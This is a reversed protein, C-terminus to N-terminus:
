KRTKASSENKLEEEEDKKLKETEVQNIISGIVSLPIIVGIFLLMLLEM